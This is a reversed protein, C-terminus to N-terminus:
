GCPWGMTVKTLKIDRFSVGLMYREKARQTTLFMNGFVKILSITELGYTQVTLICANHVKHKLNMPIVNNKLIQGLEGFAVRALRIRRFCKPKGKRAYIHSRPM